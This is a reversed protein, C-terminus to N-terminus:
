KGGSLLVRALTERIAAPRSVVGLGPRERQIRKCERDVAALLVDNLRVSVLFGEGTAPRGVKRKAPKTM